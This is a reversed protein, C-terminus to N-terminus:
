LVQHPRAMCAPSGGSDSSRTIPSVLKALQARLACPELYLTVVMVARGKKEAGGEALAVVMVGGGGMVDRGGGIREGAAALHRVGRAADHDEVVGLAVALGSVKAGRLGDGRGRPLHSRPSSGGEM